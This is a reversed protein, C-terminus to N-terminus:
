VGITIEGDEKRVVAYVHNTDIYKILNGFTVKVGPYMIGICQIEGEKLNGLQESIKAYRMKTTEYEEVVTQRTISFSKLMELQQSNLAETEKKKMLFKVGQDIKNLTEMKEKMVKSLQKHEAYVTPPVGIQLNTVTGMLSGISRALILNTASASGGVITGRGMEVMISDGATVDSHLLAGSIVNGGAEVHTNQIFKTVVNGKAVLKSKSNGQIGYSLVIDGEAIIVADNVHGKVEVSGGAKVTFGSHISGNIVVSGVFDINGVSNDLDGEVVYVSSIYVNHDDYELKGEIEAVLTLGDELIKTNKGKPIRAEKGRKAKVVQGLINIGDEGDTAFIKTALHDGAKVNKVVGLDKLDVTGDENEKPKLTKLAVPDFTFQIYGDKGDTPSKGEAIIYKYGYNHDYYIENLDFEKIGYIIGKEKLADKIEELSLHEGGNKPAVFSIVGLMKNQSIEICLKEKVVEADAAM